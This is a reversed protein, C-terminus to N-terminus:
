EVETEGGGCIFPGDVDSILPIEIPVSGRSVFWHMPAIM